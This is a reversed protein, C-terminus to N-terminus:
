ELLWFTNTCLAFDLASTQLDIVALAQLDNNDTFAISGHLFNERWISQQWLLCVVSAPNGRGIIWNPVGSNTKNDLQSRRLAVVRLLAISLFVIHDM